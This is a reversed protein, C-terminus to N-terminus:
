LGTENDSSHKRRLKPLHVRQAGKLSNQQSNECDGRCTRKSSTLRRGIESTTSRDTTGPAGAEWVDCRLRPLRSSGCSLYERNRQRGRLREAYHATVSQEM